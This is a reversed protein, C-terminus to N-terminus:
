VRMGKRQPVRYNRYRLYRWHVKDDPRAAAVALRVQKLSVTRGARASAGHRRQTHLPTQPPRPLRPQHLRPASPSPPPSSARSSTTTTTFRPRPRATAPASSADPTSSSADKRPSRHPSSCPTWPPATADKGPRVPRDRGGALAARRTAATANRARRDQGQRRPRRAPHRSRPGPQAPRQSAQGTVTKAQRNSNPANASGVAVM